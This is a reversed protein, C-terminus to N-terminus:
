ALPPRKRTRIDRFGKAPVPIGADHGRAEKALLWGINAMSLAQKIEKKSYYLPSNRGTGKRVAQIIGKRCLSKFKKEDIKMMRLWGDVESARVLDQAPEYAKVAEMFGVQVFDAIVANLENLDINM